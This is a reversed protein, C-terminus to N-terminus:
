ASPGCAPACDGDTNPYLRVREIGVRWARELEPDLPTEDAPRAREIATRDQQSWLAIQARHVAAQQAAQAIIADRANLASQAEAEARALDREVALEARSKGFPLRPGALLWFAVLALGLCLVPRKMLFMAASAIGRALGAFAAAWSQAMQATKSGSAGPASAVVDFGTVFGLSGLTEPARWTAALAAPLAPRLASVVIGALFGLTAFAFAGLALGIM